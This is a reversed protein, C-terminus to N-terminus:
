NELMLEMRGVDNLNGSFSYLMIMDRYCNGLDM